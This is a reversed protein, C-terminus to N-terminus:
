IYVHGKYESKGKSEKPQTAHRPFFSNLETCSSPDHGGGYPTGIEERPGEFDITRKESPCERDSNKRKKKMYNTVMRTGLYGGGWVGTRPELMEGLEM